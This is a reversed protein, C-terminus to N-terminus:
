EKDAATAALEFTPYKPGDAKAYVYVFYEPLSPSSVTVAEPFLFPKRSSMCKAFVAPDVQTGYTRISEIRESCVFLDTDGQQPSLRVIFPFVQQAIDLVFVQAYGRQLTHNFADGVNFIYDEYSVSVNVESYSQTSLVLTYARSELSSILSFLTNERRVVPNGLEISFDSGGDYLSVTVLTRGPKSSISYQVSCSSDVVPRYSIGPVLIPAVPYSVLSSPSSCDAPVRTQPGLGPCDNVSPCFDFTHPLRSCFYQGYDYVTCRTPNYLQLGDDLEVNGNANVCSVIFGLVLLIGATSM